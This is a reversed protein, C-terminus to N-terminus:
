ANFGHAANNGVGNPRTSMISNATKLQSKNRNNTKIRNNIYDSAVVDAAIVVLVIGSALLGGPIGGAKLGALIFASCCKIFLQETPSDEQM